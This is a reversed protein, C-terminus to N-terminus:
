AMTDIAVEFRQAGQDSGSGAEAAGQRAQDGLEDSARMAQETEWFSIGVGNGGSRDLLLTFGKFGDTGEYKPVVNERVHAEVEDAKDPSFSIRGIRAHM